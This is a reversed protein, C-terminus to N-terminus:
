VEPPKKHRQRNETAELMNCSSMNRSNTSWRSVASVSSMKQRKALVIASYSPSIKRNFCSTSRCRPSSSVAPRGPSLGAPWHVFVKINTPKIFVIDASHIVDGPEGALHRQWTSFFTTLSSAMPLKFSTGTQWWNTEILLFEKLVLFWSSVATEMTVAVLEPFYSFKIAEM